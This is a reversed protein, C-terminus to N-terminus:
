AVIAVRRDAPVVNSEILADIASRRIRIARGIRVYEIRRQSVYHRLTVESLGTAEATQAITLLQANSTAPRRVHVRVRTPLKKSARKSM